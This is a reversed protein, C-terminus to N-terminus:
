KDLTKPSTRKMNAYEFEIKHTVVDSDDYNYVTKESYAKVQDFDLTYLTQGCGDMAVLSMDDSYTQDTIQDLWDHPHTKGRLTMELVHVTMSNSFTDIEVRQVLNQFDPNRKSILLFRFTRPFVTLPSKLIDPIGMNQSKKDKKEQM